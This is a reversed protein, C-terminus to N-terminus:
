PSKTEWNPCIKCMQMKLMILRGNSLETTQELMYALGKIGAYCPFLRRPNSRAINRLSNIANSLLVPKLPWLGFFFIFFFLFSFCRSIPYFHFFYASFLLFLRFKLGLFNEFILFDASFLFEWVGSLLHNENSPVCLVQM